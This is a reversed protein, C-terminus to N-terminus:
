VVVDETRDIYIWFHDLRAGSTLEADSIQGLANGLLQSAALLSINDSEWTGTKSKTLGAAELTPVVQNRLSSGSDNNLSFRLIVRAM